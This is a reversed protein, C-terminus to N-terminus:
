PLTVRSSSAFNGGTYSGAVRLVSPSGSTGASGPFRVNATASGGAAISGLNPLATTPATSGLLVSTLQVNSATGTGTNTVTIGAVIENTGPDRSLSQTVVLTVSLPQISVVSRMVINDVTVGCAHGPRVDSCIALQDQAFEFRLQARSGAMGGFKSRFLM